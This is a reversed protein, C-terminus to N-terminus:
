KRRCPQHLLGCFVPEVELAFRPDQTAPSLQTWCSCMAQGAVLSVGKTCVMSFSKRWADALMKCTSPLLRPVGSLHLSAHVTKALHLVKREEASACPAQQSHFSGAIAKTSPHQRGLSQWCPLYRSEPNRTAGCGPLADPVWAPVSVRPQPYLHGCIYGDMDTSHGPDASWKEAMWILPTAPTLSAVKKGWKNNQNAQTELTNNSMKHKDLFFAPETFSWPVIATHQTCRQTGTHTISELMGVHVTRPLPLAHWNEPLLFPSVASAYVFILLGQHCCM